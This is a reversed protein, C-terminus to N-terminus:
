LQREALKAAAFWEAGVRDIAAFISPYGTHTLLDTRSLMLAVACQEGPSLPYFNREDAQVAKAMRVLNAVITETPESM